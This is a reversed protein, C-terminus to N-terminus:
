GVNTESVTHLILHTHTQVRGWGELHMESCSYYPSFLCFLIFLCIDPHILKRNSGYCMSVFNTALVVSLKRLEPPWFDSTLTHVPNGEAGGLKQHSDASRSRPQPVETAAETETPVDGGRRTKEETHSKELSM